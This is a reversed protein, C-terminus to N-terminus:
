PMEAGPQADRHVPAALGNVAVTPQSFV